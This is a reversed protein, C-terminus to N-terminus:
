NSPHLGSYICIGGGYDTASNGSITFNNIILYGFIIDIGSGSEGSNHMIKFGELTTGNPSNSCTVTSYGDVGIITTAPAANVSRLTIVKGGPFIISKNYTGDTVEITDGSEADDLAVQISTFYTEQTINHVSM